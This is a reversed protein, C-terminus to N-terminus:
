DNPAIKGLREIVKIMDEKSPMKKGESQQTTPWPKDPQVEGPWRPIALREAPESASDGGPRQEVGYWKERAKVGKDWAALCGLLYEALIFDPTNSGNEASHANLASAIKKELTEDRPTIRQIEALYAPVEALPMETLHYVKAVEQLLGKWKEAEAKWHLESTM